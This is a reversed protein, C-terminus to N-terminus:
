NWAPQPAGAAHCYQLVDVNEASADLVRVITREIGDPPPASLDLLRAEPYPRGQADAILKVSPRLREDPNVAYVVAREGTSLEVLSGFPYVGLCQILQEVLARDYHERLGLQYLQRVAQGPSLPPRGGRRSAMADYIDVLGVIQSPLALREGRLGDPYGSGDLREHHEAVIARTCDPLDETKALMATGIKPHFRFVGRGEEVYGAHRLLNRPLRTEGIDHLLAGMGIGELTAQDLGQARGVILSLVCVDVAHSFLDGDLRQMQQLQVLTLSAVPHDTLRSFFGAVVTRLAPSDLPAGTKIGNFIREVAQLADARVNRALEVEEELRPPSSPTDRREHLGEVLEPGACIATGNTGLGGFSEEQKASPADRKMNEAPDEDAGIAVDITVEKIGSAKLRALDEDRKLLWRHSFFPTQFWSRDMGVIFMGVKLREIPITKHTTM